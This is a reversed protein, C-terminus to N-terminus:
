RSVRRPIARLLVTPNRRPQETSRSSTYTRPIARLLVTPNRCTSSYCSLFYEWWVQFQGLCYPPIAVIAYKKQELLVLLLAQFQGSCYPPIAVSMLLYGLFLHWGIGSSCGDRLPSPLRVLAAAM